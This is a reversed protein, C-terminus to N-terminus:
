KAAKNKVVQSWVAVVVTSLVVGLAQTFDPNSFMAAVDGHFHGVAWGAGAAVGARTWGGLKDADVVAKLIDLVANM